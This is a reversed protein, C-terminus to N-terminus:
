ELRKGCKSCRQRNIDHGLYRNCFPCRWNIISFIIFLAIIILQASLIANKSVVGFIDSRKYVLICVVLLLLTIAIALYQRNKKIRFENIIEQEKKM